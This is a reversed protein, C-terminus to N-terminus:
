QAQGSRSLLAFSDFPDPPGSTDPRLKGAAVITKAFLTGVPLMNLGAESAPSKSKLILYHVFARIGSLPVTGSVM